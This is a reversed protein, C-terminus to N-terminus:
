SVCVERSIHQNLSYTQPITTAILKYICNCISIHRFYDFCKPFNTKPILAIFTSNLPDHVFGRSRSEEVLRALDEGLLEFFHQFLKVMYGDPGMGKEKKISLLVGEV